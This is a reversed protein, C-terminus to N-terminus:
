KNLVSKREKEYEEYPKREANICENHEAGTQANKICESNQYSQGLEYFGKNSCGMLVISFLLFYFLKNM